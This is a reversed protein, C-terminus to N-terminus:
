NTFNLSFIFYLIYDYFTNTKSNKIVLNDDMGMEVFEDFIIKTFKGNNSISFNIKIKNFTELVQNLNKCNDNISLELSLKEETEFNNFDIVDKTFFRIILDANEKQPTIYEHFDNQRKEISTLVKEITYGREIVDRKIKWKKKLSDDTDMFIKIDYLNNDGYLSHLGCVILNDSPNILQKETFKGSHHDYDVQYIENGLKLNFIDEEMKTIYNAEPNLHTIEDWNENHREWKHYRDCELM